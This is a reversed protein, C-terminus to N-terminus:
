RGAGDDIDIRTVHGPYGVAWGVRPSGFGVAWLEKTSLSSWTAGADNSWAVGRPGSAFLVAVTPDPLWTVAFAGGMPLRGSPDWTRGGDTSTATKIEDDGGAKVVYARGDERVAISTLSGESEFPARVAYWTDGADATGLVREQTTVVWAESDGRVDVCTGSAASGAEMDGEVGIPDPLRDPPIRTWTRGGDATTAMWLGGDIADGYLIGRDQDWFDFCDIFGEPHDMRFRETWTAGADETRYIRSDSGSGISLLLATSGDFAHVDRFELADTGPVTGTEWSSGGDDTRAFLAGEVGVGAVWVTDEDVPSLAIFLTREPDGLEVTQETLVVEWTSPDPLSGDLASPEDVAADDCAGALAGLTTVVILRAARRRALSLNMM